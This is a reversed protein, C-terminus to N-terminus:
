RHGYRRLSDPRCHIISGNEREEIEFEADLFHRIVWMNTRVHDTVVPVLISSPGSAMSLYPLLQDAMYEDVTAPTSLLKKLQRAARAGVEESPLGQKGLQSAGLICNDYEASLLLATGNSFAPTYSIHGNDIKLIQEAGELQREAIRPSALNETAVSWASVVPTGERQLLNLPFIRDAPCITVSIEGGGKPYFGHRIIESEIKIGMKKLYKCFIHRFYDATPSWAVHTGGMIRIHVPQKARSAPIALAQLLLPISGATVIDIELDYRTQIGPEFFIESSGHYVGEMRANCMAGCAEISKMHQHQLGPNPRGARINKIRCAIGTLVSFGVATRVIQGGGELYSGDLQITM